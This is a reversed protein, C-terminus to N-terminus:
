RDLRRPRLPPPTPGTPCHARPAAHSRVSPVPPVRPRRGPITCSRHYWEALRFEEPVDEQEDCQAADRFEDEGKNKLWWLATTVDLTGIVHEGGYRAAEVTFCRRRLPDPPQDAM